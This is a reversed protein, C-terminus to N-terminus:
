VTPPTHTFWRQGSGFWLPLTITLAVAIAILGAVPQGSLTTFVGVGLNVLSVLLVIVRAFDVGAFIGSGTAAYALGVVLYGVGALALNNTPAGEATLPLAALVLFFVGALLELTGLIWCLIAVVTVM